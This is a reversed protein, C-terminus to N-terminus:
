AVGEPRPRRVLPPRTEVPADLRGALEAVTPSEFLHRIPVEAHLEERIESILRTALLSHGGLDFFDDDIGVREIGLVQAFLGCLVEERADRPGRGGGGEWVPVPLAARDLKGNPTLPLRDVVVVASPVMFEPLRERAFGRLSRGDDAMEERPVVYAVLRDDGGNARWPVVVARHVAPHSALTAAIEGPEVRFGRIKIQDDARGLYDLAGAANWRVLDGTRYMRAGAPGFPDAVFREATLGARGAYGRAVGTGAVYLEGIAGPPVPALGADLVYARTNAIPRGIPPPGAALPDSTTACVTTETPGYANFMRARTAFRAVIEPTCAEGAAVVCRPGPGDREPLSALVAPPVVMHTVGTGAIVDALDAGVARDEPPLVLTAGSLLAMVLDGVAMDFGTAAFQLVRADAGVGFRAIQDMAVNVLGAHTVTVGKPRGSSGSTFIVYAPSDPHVPVPGGPTRDEADVADPRDIVLRPVAPGDRRLAADGKEDTLVLVPGADATMQALRFMPIAPDVTLCAGGAKLVALVGAVLDASRPLLLAAVREPGVGRAALARALRDSRADLEAYTLSADRSMVATAGPTRAAQAAFLEALGAHPREARTDNRTVLLEHREALTLLDIAGIRRGPDAAAARLLRAWRGVLTAITREDFLDTSYEVAIDLGRPTGDADRVEVLSFFADMKATGTHPIGAAAVALGPAALDDEPTNQLAMSVQFLPHGAMSRVPNLVEVLREFPIDQNAYAALATDRVRGLLEAFTPEGSTDTRIVLNNVFFGVLDDLAEDTRGAIPAGIPIDTGAGLRTLLAALGAHLVMFLSAGSTRALRLLAEHLEADWQYTVLDGRHTAIPPRPRDTPLRLQEPLGALQGRWYALQRAYRSDPQREDGLLERQWLAYDAYQVPLEAWSPAHGALRARYATTLDRSLPAFSWADTVIHHFVVVLVHEEPGLRWLRGWLPIDTALDFVHRAAEDLAAPLGPETLPAPDGGALVAP